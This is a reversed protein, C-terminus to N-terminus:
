SHEHTKSVRMVTLGTDEIRALGDFDAAEDLGHRPAIRMSLDEQGHLVVFPRSVTQSASVADILMRRFRPTSPLEIWTPSRTVM